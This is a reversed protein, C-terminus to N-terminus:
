NQQKKKIISLLKQIYSTQLLFAKELYFREIDHLNIIDNCIKCKIIGTSLDLTTIDHQCKNKRDKKKQEFDIINM